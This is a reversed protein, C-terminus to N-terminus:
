LSWAEQNSPLNVRTAVDLDVIYRPLNVVIQSWRCDQKM